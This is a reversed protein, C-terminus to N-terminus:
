KLLAILAVLVIGAVQVWQVRMLTKSKAREITMDIDEQKLGAIYERFAALGLCTSERTDEYHKIKSEMLAMREGLGIVESRKGNAKDPGWYDVSHQRVETYLKAIRDRAESDVCEPM